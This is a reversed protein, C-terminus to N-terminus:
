EPIPTGGTADSQYCAEVLAMTRYADEFHTILREDEGASFRQLNSMTGIFADPFWRGELPVDQWQGERACLQVMEPKGTPYNLLLGLTVLAAGNTGQLFFTAAEHEPGYTYNHNLSLCVRTQQGYNLIISTKTSALDPFDPHGVSQAYAGSPEGLLSRILDLYHISHVLIEVRKLKKLFPFLEWPTRLNLRVELDTIQGIQGRDIADRVVMMMPAFRLQFNVAATLQKQRCIDRIRRADALDAGMPKQLLVASGDPLVTAIDYAQQPPVAVDFVANHDQALDVAEELSQCVVPINWKEATATARALDIDYVGSVAFGAKRYAPLHADNVIGGAGILVIPRASTPRPWFQNSSMAGM